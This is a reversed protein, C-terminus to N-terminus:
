LGATREKQSGSNSMQTSLFILGSFDPTSIDKLRDPKSYNLLKTNTSKKYIRISVIKILM